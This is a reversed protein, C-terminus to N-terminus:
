VGKIKHSFVQFLCSSLALPFPVFALLAASFRPVVFCYTVASAAEVPLGADASARCTIPM